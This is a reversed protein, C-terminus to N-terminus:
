KLNEDFIQVKEMAALKAIYDSFARQSKAQQYDMIVQTKVDDYSKDGYKDKKNALYYNHVDATDINIQPLIKGTAYKEVVLQKELQEKQKVIAPDRDLGERVAAKYMLEVAIYQQLMEKKGEPGLFKKQMETPLSQIANDIDALYVPESGIKAVLTGGKKPQSPNLDAEQDLERKADVMRGMKELSTILNKGAEDYFSGKPNLSRAMVYEAAAKAYDQLNEFYIKGILYHINASTEADLKPDELIREYQDISAQYLNNDALEGALNKQVSYDRVAKSRQLDAALYIIAILTLGSLIVSIIGLTSRSKEM